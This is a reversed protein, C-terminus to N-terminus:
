QSLSQNGVEANPKPLLRKPPPPINCKLADLDDFIDPLRDIDPSNESM